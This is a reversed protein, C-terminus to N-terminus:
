VLAAACAVQATWAITRLWNARVLRQVARESAAPELRGHLPAFVLGTLVFTGIALGANLVSLGSGDEVVLVLAVGVSALM